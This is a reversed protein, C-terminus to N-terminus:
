GEFAPFAMNIAVEGSAERGVFLSHLSLLISPVLELSGFGIELVLLRSARIALSGM